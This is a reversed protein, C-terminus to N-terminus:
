KVILVKHTGEPVRFSATAGPSTSGLVRDDVSVTIKRGEVSPLLIRVRKKTEIIFGITRDTTRYGKLRVPGECEVEISGARMLVLREPESIIDFSAGSYPIADLRVSEAPETTGISLGTWPDAYILEDLAPQLLLAPFVAGNPDIRLREGTKTNISDPLTGGANWITAAMRAGVRALSSAKENYGYRRLGAYLLYNDVARLREAAPLKSVILDARKQDPIGALLPLFNDVSVAKRFKGNWHRSLYLGDEESWLVQNITAKLKDYRAQMSESPLGLERAILTLIEADLAILSNLGIPSLEVTHTRDNFKLQPEDETTALPEPSGPDNGSEALAERIRASESLGAAGIRGLEFEADYGYEILGDRNGDRWPTGDGRDKDWWSNWLLLKPYAWALLSLDNTTLYVKWVCFAGIPPMSRGALVPPEAGPVGNRGGIRLPIRGDPLQKELAQRITGAAAGPDITGAMLAAFFVDWRLEVSRNPDFATGPLRKFAVYEHESDPDYFRNWNITRSAIDRYSKAEASQGAKSPAKEDLLAAIPRTLMGAAEREMVEIDDGILAIFSVTQDQTPDFSLASYRDLASRGAAEPQGPHGDHILQDKMRVRDSYSAAGAAPRETKLYFMRGGTEVGHVREGIITRRDTQSIFSSWAADERGESFPRYTELAIRVDPPAKIQGIVANSGIRSWRFGIPGSALRSNWVVAARSGDHYGFNFEGPIEEVADGQRYVIVRLGFHNGNGAILTLGNIHVPDYAGILIPSQKAARAPEITSSIVTLLAAIIIRWSSSM